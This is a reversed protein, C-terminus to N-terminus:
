NTENGDPKEPQTTAEQLVVSITENEYVTHIGSQTVYGECSVSWTVTTGYEVELTNTYIGDIKVVADKPTALISLIVNKSGTENPVFSITDQTYANIDTVQILECKVTANSNLDYDFIKNVMFLQGDLTVFRKFTFNMYEWPYINFYATVKKNQVSYREDIYDMWFNDYIFKSTANSLYGDNTYDEKPQNFICAYPSDIHYSIIDLRPFSQIVKVTNQYYLENNLIDNIFGKDYWCPRQNNRMEDSDDTIYIPNTLLRNERRFYWSNAIVASSDESNASEIRPVVDLTSIIADNLNWNKLTTYKIFRRQSVMSPNIKTFLDKDESNFDYTTKLKKMGYEVGYKDRYANYKTGDLEEYNFNVYKSEFTIPEIMYDKSRDLKNDWNEVTFDKFFTSKRVISITKNLTDVDWYLNYMKTYQLIIDFIPTEDLYMLDLGINIVNSRGLMSMTSEGSMNTTLANTFTNRSTEIRFPTANPSYISTTIIVDWEDDETGIPLSDKIPKLNTAYKGYIYPPTGSSIENLNFTFIMNDENLVSIDPKYYQTGNSSWCYNTITHEGNILKTEYVFALKEATGFRYANYRTNMNDYTFDMTVVPYFDFRNSKPTIKFSATSGGFYGGMSYTNLTIPVKEMFTGQSSTKINDVGELYNLTYVLKTWYPNSNNFWTPDLKLEYGTLEKSKEKFMYMLKNIYIFPLQHYSRYEDMQFDKMGDGVVDDAGLLDVYDNVTEKESDTLELYSKSYQKRAYTDRWKNTLDQSLPIFSEAVTQAYTPNLQIESSNFDMGYYGRYAPAFGIIDQDTITDDTFDNPNNEDNMWSNYVYEANLITGGLHDNLIYKKGGDEEAKQEDTLRDESTVVDKMKQFYEGLVGFLNLNYSKNSKSYNASTFKAYGDMIEEGNYLLRFPIKKTPDLYMGINEQGYKELVTKDLRYANGLIKNNVITMPISITKSYDVIIDTPNTLNEFSKNLPISVNKTLEVEQDALLLQIRM